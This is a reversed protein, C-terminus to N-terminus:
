CQGPRRSPEQAVVSSSSLRLLFRSHPTLWSLAWPGRGWDRQSELGAMEGSSRGLALIGTSLGRRGGWRGRRRDGEELGTGTPEPQSDAENRVQLRSDTGALLDQCGPAKIGRPVSVRPFASSLELPGSLPFAFLSLSYPPPPPPALLQGEVAAAWTLSHNLTHALKM